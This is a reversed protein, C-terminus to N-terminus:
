RGLMGGARWTRHKTYKVNRTPKYQKSTFLLLLLLMQIAGYILNRM